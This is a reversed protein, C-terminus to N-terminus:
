KQIKYIKQKAFFISRYLKVNVLLALAAVKRPWGFGSDCLISFTHKKLYKVVEPYEPLEKYNGLCLMKDLVAFYAYALRFKAYCLAEPCSERVMSYCKNYAEIVDLDRQRFPKTTISNSRRNYFYLPKTTVALRHIRCLVEPTFFCDEYVKGHPFRIDGIISRKFLKNCLSPLGMGRLIFEFAKVRDCCFENEELHHTVQHNEFVDYCACCSIDSDYRIILHHLVELMDPAIYDDSDVFSIFEGSARELGQNRTDSIGSHEKHIVQIRADKKAYEDCIAGSNDESADDVLLVEIDTYTQNVVSDICRSLYKEENYVPIIVSIM